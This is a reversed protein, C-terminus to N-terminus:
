IPPSIFYNSTKVLLQILFRYQVLFEIIVQKEIPPFPVKNQYAWKEALLLEKFPLTKDTPRM